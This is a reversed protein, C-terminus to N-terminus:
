YGLWLFAEQKSGRDEQIIRYTSLQRSWTTRQTFQIQEAMEPRLGSHLASRWLGTFYSVYEHFIQSPCYCFLVANLFLHLPSPIRPISATMGNLIKDEWRSQLLIVCFQLKIHRSRADSKRGVKVSICKNLQKLVAHKPSVLFHCSHPFFQVTILIKTIQV